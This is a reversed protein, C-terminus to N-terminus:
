ADTTTNTKCQMFDKFDDKLKQMAVDYDEKQGMRELNEQQLLELEQKLEAITKPCVALSVKNNMADSAESELTTINAMLSNKLKKSMKSDGEVHRRLNEISKLMKLHSEILIRNKNCANRLPSALATYYQNAVEAEKGMKLYYTYIENARRVMDVVKTRADFNRNFNALSDASSKMDGLYESVKITAEVMAIINDQEEIVLRQIKRMYDVPIIYCETLPTEDFAGAVQKSLIDISDDACNYKGVYWGNQHESPQKNWLRLMGKENTVWVSNLTSFDTKTEKEMM